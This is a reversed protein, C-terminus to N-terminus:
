FLTIYLINWYTCMPTRRMEKDIKGPQNNVRGFLFLKGPKFSDHSAILGPEKDLFVQWNKQTRVLLLVKELFLQEDTRPKVNRAHHICTCQEPFRAKVSWIYGVQVVVSTVSSPIPAQTRSPFPVDRTKYGLPSAAAFITKISIFFYSSDCVFKCYMSHLVCYTQLVCGPSLLKVILIFM